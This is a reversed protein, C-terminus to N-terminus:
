VTCLSVQFFGTSLLWELLTVGAKLALVPASDLNIEPWFPAVESLLDQAHDDLDAEMSTFARIVRM